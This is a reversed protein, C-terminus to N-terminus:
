IVKNIKYYAALLFLISFSLLVLWTQYLIVPYNHCQKLNKCSTQFFLLFVLFGSPLTFSFIISLYYVIQTFKLIWTQDAKKNLILELNLATSWTKMTFIWHKVGITSLYLTYPIVWVWLNITSIKSSTFHIEYVYLWIYVFNFISQFSQILCLTIAM